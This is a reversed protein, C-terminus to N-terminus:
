VHARGIQEGGKEKIRKEALQDLEIETIGPQVQDIIEFLVEALIKGAKRMIDIEKQTKIPIM